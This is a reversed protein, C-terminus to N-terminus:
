RKHMVNWCNYLYASAIGMAFFFLNSLCRMGGIPGPRLLMRLYNMKGITYPPYRASALTEGLAGLDKHLVSKKHVFTDYSQKGHYSGMGSSGVGGFPLGHTALHMITDNITVGGASTNKLISNVVTKDNSFIYLALPKERKNIFEIAENVNSAKVIPLIPGFIENQMIPDTSKANIVITPAIYRSSFFYNM